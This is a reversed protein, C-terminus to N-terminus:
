NWRILLRRISTPFRALPVIKVFARVSHAVGVALAVIGLLAGWFQPLLLFEILVVSISVLFFLGARRNDASWAFGSLRRVIPYALFCHVAYSGLFAIGAGSLGFKQSCIWSLSSIV